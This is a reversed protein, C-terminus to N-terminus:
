ARHPPCLVEWQTQTGLALAEVSKLLEGKKGVGGAVVVRPGVQAMVHGCRSTSMAALPEWQRSAVAYRYVLNSHTHLKGTCYMHLSDYFTAIVSTM